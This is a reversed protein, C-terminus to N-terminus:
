SVLILMEGFLEFADVDLNVVEDFLMEFLTIVM